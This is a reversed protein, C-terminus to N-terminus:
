LPYFLETVPKNLAKAIRTCTVANLPKGECAKYITARSINYDKPFIELAKGNELIANKLKLVDALFM